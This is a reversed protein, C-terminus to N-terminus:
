TQSLTGPLGVRKVENTTTDRDAQFWQPLRLPSVVVRAPHRRRQPPLLQVHQSGARQAEVEPPAVEGGFSFDTVEREGCNPCTLLFSM